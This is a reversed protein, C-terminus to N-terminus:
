DSWLENPLRPPEYNEDSRSPTHTRIRIDYATGSALGDILYSRFNQSDTIGHITFLGGDSVSIEYYVGVHYDGDVNRFPIPTWTLEIRESDLATAKVNTPAVTQTADWDGDYATIFSRLNEEPIVLRNDSLDFPDLDLYTLNTLNGIEAPLSSLDNSWLQLWTLNALNGIEAPLSSLQNYWLGLSTLNTLNGIEAPLSSLQNQSLYLGTLNTLNGIEPPLSSLENWALDLYTLYTLNGIEAPLDGKLGFRNYGKSIIFGALDLGTTHGDECTVGYWRCPTNTQLWRTTGQPTGVSTILWSRGNMEHYLAVLAECESQPIETV